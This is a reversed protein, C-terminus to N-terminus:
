CSRKRGDLFNLNGTPVPLPSRKQATLELGLCYALVCATAQTFKDHTQHGTATGAEADEPIPDLNGPQSGKEPVEEEAPQMVFNMM